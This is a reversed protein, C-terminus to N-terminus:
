IEDQCVNMQLLIENINASGGGDENANAEMHVQTFEREDEPGAEPAVGSNVEEEEPEAM